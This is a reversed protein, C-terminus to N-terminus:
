QVLIDKGLAFTDQFSLCLIYIFVFMQYLLQLLHASQSVDFFHANNDQHTGLVAYYLCSSSISILQGSADM